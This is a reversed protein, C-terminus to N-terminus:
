IDVIFNLSAGNICYRIGAPPTGDEFLHGLHANCDECRVEIRKIGNSIDVFEKIRAGQIPTIFAPWGYGSDFKSESSFLKAGCVVCSYDGKDNLSTYESSFPRETAGEQTVKWQIDTLRQKLIETEM